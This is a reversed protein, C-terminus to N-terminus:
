NMYQCLLEDPTCPITQFTSLVICITSSVFSSVIIDIISLSVTVHIICMCLTRTRCYNYNRTYVTFTM